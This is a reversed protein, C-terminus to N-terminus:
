QRLLEELMAKAEKADARGKSERMVWGLIKNIVNVKGARYKAVEAPQAALARACLDKLGDGGGGSNDQGVVFGQAEALELPPAEPNALMHRLLHKGSTWTITGGQVLDILQGFADATLPNDSFTRQQASLQGLLDQTMWNVVVKPDRKGSQCVLDLYSIAGISGEAPVREGMYEEELKMLTNVDRKSLGYADRLRARTEWPLPPQTERLRTLRDEGIRLVGLNPDPMYRYDQADEKSRLAYTEFTNPDFGRTQQEVCAGSELIGKQRAVEHKIAAMIFKVGNVNKVECRTGSGPPADARNVSVNVDCRLSGMEMNGDSAGVTRLVSQLARVYQGAEEPSSMDPETVIEILGTGARNLDIYSKRLRPVTTSKATDQELQIQHIRVTSNELLLSGNRAFPAYHQTIQYGSPLDSYFYHKRDFSSRPNVECKLALAARLALDVCAQNLRPLTGPFAADFAVFHTNPTDGLDSTPAESFLKQKSKLQAHTEIGIVAQWGSWRSDHKLARTHLRRAVFM